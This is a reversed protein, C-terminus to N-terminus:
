ELKESRMWLRWCWRTRCGGTGRICMFADADLPHNHTANHHTVVVQWDAVQSGDAGFKKKALVNMRAPCRISRSKQRPRIGQGRSRPKGGHTCIMTKAYFQVGPHEGLNLYKPDCKKTMQQNRYAVSASSLSVYLQFTQRQYAEFAATFADWSPFVTPAMAPANHLVPVDEPPPPAM